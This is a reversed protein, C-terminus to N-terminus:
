SFEVCITIVLLHASYPFRPQCLVTCSSLQASMGIVDNLSRIGALRVLGLGLNYTSGRLPSIGWVAGLGPKRYVLSLLM